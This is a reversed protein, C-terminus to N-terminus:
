LTEDADIEDELDDEYVQEATAFTGDIDAGLISMGRVVKEVEGVSVLKPKQYM